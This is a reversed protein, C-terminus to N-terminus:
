KCSRLPTGGLAGNLEELRPRAAEDVQAIRFMSGRVEARERVVTATRVGRQSLNVLEARARAESDFGGLSLGYGLSPNTIPEFRLNLLALENRKKALTQADPYKGMYIIWRAPEIAADLVWSGAPLRDQAVARVAAAQADDLLGAQLCEALKPAAQAAVEDKHVEDLALIRVREPRIQQGLRQPERQVVPAFGYPRLLDHTWAFYGANLLLLLLVILRLM